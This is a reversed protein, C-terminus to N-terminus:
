RTPRPSSEPDKATAPSVPADGAKPRAATPAPEEVTLTQDAAVNQLVQVQGSPWRVTVREAKGADGLGFYLPLRSQSLYGSKGDHLQTQTMGGAAVEVIAGLGDRNSAHGRLRVALHRVTRREALDSLFVQPPAFMEGTVIDLDGDGDLDLLASSRTGLTGLIRVPGEKRQCHEHQRDAGSCDLDFWPKHTRGGKRPEVGLLFAADHFRRGADNLYLSNPGYRFPYNMSATVFIDEFGDANLDGVSLGWPWYNELGLADSRETFTGDGANVYFANGFINDGGGQLGPMKPDVRSKETERDPTIQEFMDSHMDTLYLDQDGDNDFDFVGIGMAGWPTKPFRETRLDVFGEGKKSVWFHDDGQMNLVYLEPYGDGDLDTLNADGTWSTDVLGVRESVDEFGKGGLNRYLVSRETRDPRLHGQFADHFGVHYGGPGTHEHTYRGVNCVFLDLWGDRDYDFFVAGSSHGVLELGRAQTVDRFRGNGDNEFLVNGMRVTTV